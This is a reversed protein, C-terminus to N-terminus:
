HGPAQGRHESRASWNRTSARVTIYGSIEVAPGIRQSRSPGVPPHLVHGLMARAATSYGLNYSTMRALFAELTDDFGVVATDPRVKGESQKHFALCGLAVTDNVGVWATIGSDTAARRVLPLTRQRLTERELVDSADVRMADVTRRLIRPGDDMGSLVPTLVGEVAHSVAQAHAPLERGAVPSASQSTFTEVADPIGASEYAARLGELRGVSWNQEHMPSIYAVRRHGEAILYRGVEAGLRRDEAMAYVRIAGPDQVFLPLAMQSSYGLVSVPHGTRSLQLVLDALSRRISFALVLFGLVSGARSSRLFLNTRKGGIHLKNDRYDCGCVELDLRMRSCESELGRVIEPLQWGGMQLNGDRDGRAILVVSHRHREGSLTAVRYTRGYPVIQEDTVLGDLAKKLTRYCAGYKVGMEKPSPLVSGAPYVGKQLDLELSRRVAHWKAARTRRSSASDPPEVPDSIVPAVSYESGHTVLFVGEQNLRQIAKRLVVSDLGAASALENVTPVRRRYEPGHRWGIPSRQGGAAARPTDASVTIGTGHSTTLVGEGVLARVAKWMTVHAVGAKSSLDRIGPLRRKGSAMHRSSLERLYNLAKEFAPARKRMSAEDELERGANRPAM